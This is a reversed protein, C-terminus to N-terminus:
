SQLRLKDFIKVSISIGRIKKRFYPNKTLQLRFRSKEFIKMSISILFFNVSILIEGLHHFIEFIKLFNIYFQSKEFM